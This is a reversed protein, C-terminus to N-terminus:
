APAMTRIFEVAGGIAVRSGHLGTRIVCPQGTNAGQHLTLARQLHLTLAGAAVGTASDELAPDLHNFNRGDYSGDARRSYVYCGSIGHAQSWQAIRPLDPRLAQLTAHGSVEFLLKASGVSAIAPASALALGPANLLAAPLDAAINLAPVAQQTLHIFPGHETLSLDLLQGRMATRVRLAPRQASLLVHAAALTAHLCLPSRTHPYFFDFIYDATAATDADADAGAGAGARTGGADDRAPAADIFVCASKNQARAFQQRQEASAHDGQIVLATNGSGPRAGFCKLEEITIPM